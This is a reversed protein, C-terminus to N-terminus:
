SPKVAAGLYPGGALQELPDAGLQVSTRTIRRHQRDPALLGAKARRRGVLLSEAALVAPRCSASVLV